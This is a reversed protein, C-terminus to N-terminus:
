AVPQAAHAPLTNVLALTQRATALAPTPHQCSDCGSKHTSGRNGTRPFISFRSAFSIEIARNFGLVDHTSVLDDVYEAEEEIAVALNQWGHAVKREPCRQDGEEDDQDGDRGLSGAMLVGAEDEGSEHVIGAPGVIANTRGKERGEGVIGIKQRERERARELGTFEKEDRRWLM